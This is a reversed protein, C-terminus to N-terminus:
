WSSLKGQKWLGGGNREKEGSYTECKFVMKDEGEERSWEGRDFDGKGLEQRNRPM